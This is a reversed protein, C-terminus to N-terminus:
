EGGGADTVRVPQGDALLSPGSAVIQTGRTLGRVVVRDGQSPGLEVDRYRATVQGNERVIVVAAYGGARDRSPVIASLPATLAGADHADNDLTLTAVTGVLARGQANPVTVQVDFVRTQVDAAPALETIAGTVPAAAGAGLTLHVRQGVRLRRTETEPVGFVVDLRSVDAISFAPSGPGVLSGVEVRRALVVGTLPARLVTQAVPVRQAAAASQAETVQSRAAGVAAGAESAAARSAAVGSQANQIRALGARIQADAEAVRGQAANRAQRAAALKATASDLGAKAADEQPRTASGSHYLDDTRTFTDQALTVGTQAEAVGAAAQGVAAVAQARQAQAASLAARAEVVADQAQRQATGAETVKYAAQAANARATAAQANAADSQAQYDASQVRALVTGATVRDGAQVPRTTGAADRVSLVSQVYGSVRFALDVQRHPRVTGSYRQGGADEPAAGGITAAVVPVAQPPAHPAPRCGGTM